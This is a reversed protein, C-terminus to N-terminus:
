KNMDLANKAADMVTMDLHLRCYDQVKDINQEMRNMDIVTNHAVGNYYGSLWVAISQSPAIKDFLFQNCSIKAVDVKTQAQAASAAVALAAALAIPLIKM